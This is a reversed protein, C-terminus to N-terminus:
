KYGTLFVPEKKLRAFTCIKYFYTHTTLHDRHIPMIISIQWHFCFHFHTGLVQTSFSHILVNILTCYHGRKAPVICTSHTQRLFIFSTVRFHTTHEFCKPVIKDEFGFTIHYSIFITKRNCTHSCTTEERNTIFFVGTLGVDARLTYLCCANGLINHPVSTLWNYLLDILISSFPCQNIALCIWPRFGCVLLMATRLLTPKGEMSVSIWDPRM